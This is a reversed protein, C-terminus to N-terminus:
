EDWPHSLLALGGECGRMGGRPRLTAARPARLSFAPRVGRRGPRGKEGVGRVGSPGGGGLSCARGVDCGGAPWLSGWAALRLIAAGPTWQSLAPLADLM